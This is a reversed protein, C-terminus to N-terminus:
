QARNWDLVVVLGTALVFAGGDPIAVPGAVSFM